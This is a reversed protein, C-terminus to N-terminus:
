SEYHMGRSLIVYSYELYLFYLWKLWKLRWHRWIGNRRSIVEFPTAIMKTEKRQAFVGQAHSKFWKWVYSNLGHSWTVEVLSKIRLVIHIRMAQNTGRSLALVRKKVRAMTSRDRSRWRRKTGRLGKRAIKVKDLWVWTVDYQADMSFWKKLITIRAQVDQLYAHQSWDLKLKVWM